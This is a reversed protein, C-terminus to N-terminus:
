VSCRRLLYIDMIWGRETRAAARAAVVKAGTTALPGALLLEGPMGLYAGWYITIEEPALARFACDGDLMVAVTDVGAPWGKERLRRGTTVVFGNGLTNLPIAFAATLLQLSSVGPVVRVALDVGAARLAEAIRLTSDYLSPDGWVMLAVKGGGPCHGALADAWARAIAGHWDRVGALYDPANSDRVPLDFEAARESAGLNRLLARRVEALEAKEESKRPVLIVDAATLATRAAQTLHDPNGTGIGVLFLEIVAAGSLWLATSSSRPDAPAERLSAHRLAQSPTPM